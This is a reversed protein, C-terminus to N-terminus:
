LYPNDAPDAPKSAEELRQKLLAKVQEPEQWERVTLEMAREIKLRVIGKDQDVWGYENLAEAEAARLEELAQRREAARDAGIPEAGDRELMLSTRWGVVSFVAMLVVFYFGVALPHPKRPEDNM